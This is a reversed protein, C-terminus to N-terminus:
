RELNQAGPRPGFLATGLRVMTSGEQVAIELDASMGMSVEPLELRVAEAKLWRFGERADEPAGPPGVAMLGIVSVAGRSRVTEVLAAADSPAVGGRGPGSALNVEILVESGPRSLGIQEAEQPRDVAHWTSVVPALARIKNRQVTGVFHWRVSREAQAVPVASDLLLAKELLEGAYNEGLDTCGAQVAAAVVDGGHGKTVAVIRVAAPDGGASSIRRRVSDLRDRISEVSM